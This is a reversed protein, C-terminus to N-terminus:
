ITKVFSLTTKHAGNGAVDFAWVKVTYHGPGFPLSPQHRWTAEGAPCGTCTALARLISKGNLNFYEVVVAAVDFNDSVAGELVVPELPLFVKKDPTLVGVLPREGDVTFEILESLDSVNGDADTALARIGYKGTPLRVGISWSGDEDSDAETGVWGIGQVEEYVAVTSGAETRGGIVIPEAAGPLTKGDDPNLIEPPEIGTIESLDPQEFPIDADAAVFSIQSFLSYNNAQDVAYAKLTWEGPDLTPDATWPASTAGSCACTALEAHDYKGVRWYELRIASLARTDAATGEIHVPDGPAFVHDDAPATIAITPRTGDVDFTVPESPASTETGDTAVATLTHTGAALTVNLAWGTNAAVTTTGLSVAADFVEVTAAPAGTGRIQVSPKSAAGDAPSTIAPPAISAASPAAFAFLAILAAPIAAARICARRKM